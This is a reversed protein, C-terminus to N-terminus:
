RSREISDSCRPGTKRIECTFYLFSFVVFFLFVFFSQYRSIFLWSIQFRHFIVVPVRPTCWFLQNGNDRIIYFGISSFCIVYFFSLFVCAIVGFILFCCCLMAVCCVCVCAFCCCLLLLRVGLAMEM